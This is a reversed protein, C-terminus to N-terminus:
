KLQSKERDAVTTKRGLVVVTGKEPFEPCRDLVVTEPPLNGFLKSYHEETTVLFADASAKLFEAAHEANRCSEVRTGTYYVLSPRFYGYQAVQPQHAAHRRIVAAVSPSPQHQDIQVAVGAFLAVCFAAATIALGIAAERRRRMESLAICITGGILLIAGLWSILLMKDSLEPAAVPNSTSEAALHHAIMPGAIAMAIGVLVLSGFSLRPWWRNVLVPQELWRQIFSATALALAPYVPLVYSPLKTSALSFFGVMVVIWCALFRAARNTPTRAKDIERCGRILNLTTPIGFISWPFLGILIAPIYYWIEGGHNDMSNMFRGFNHVGFFERLFQGGTRWDVLVYWPGAVLLVALIATFPRMQWIATAIRSPSFRRLFLHVRDGWTVDTPLQGVPNRMLLYLGIVMGPLLVGIPGKTLVAIGMVLYIAFWQRWTLHINKSERQPLPSALWNEQRVFLYLALSSFFVLFSDPTAARAVVDFMLATSMALGAWLGVSRNFMRQGIEYTLLATAVGFIASWFRAAFETAGFLLFGTRMMWFMLPPKHAFPEGNFYPVIWDNREHMEVATRAFFAEDQDWLRTVGLNAFFVMAAVVTIWVWHRVSTQM